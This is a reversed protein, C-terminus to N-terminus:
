RRHTARRPNRMLIGMIALVAALPAAHLPLGHVISFAAPTTLIGPNAYLDYGTIEITAPGITDTPQVTYTFTYHSSKYEGAYTAPAGNVRVQPTEDLSESATFTITVTENRCAELPQVALSEFSPPTIDLTQFTSDDGHSIGNDNQAVLRFHYTTGDALHDIDANVDQPAASDDITVTPTEFGYGTDPGYEFHWQTAAGRTLVVGPLTASHPGAALWSVRKTGAYPCLTPTTNADYVLYCVACSVGASTYRIRMYGGEGWTDGWSNRLIWCGGGGEPPNDDWGVLAIVHDSATYECDACLTNTDEYVGSAYADFASTCLVAADVAGFHRIATKIADIDGCTVRHWSKFQTRSAPWSDGCDSAEPLYPKASEDCIGDVTLAELEAYEYDAGNCSAFHEGYVPLAPLCHALFGESFDACDGNVLGMAVNFTAEAAATAGFAYCTGCPGQDRIPGLYTDGNVDLWTFASETPPTDLYAALPGIDNGGKELRTQSRHRGRVQAKEWAPLNHVWTPKVTFAYGNQEIKQQITALTDTDTFPVKDAAAAAAGAMLVAAIIFGAVSKTM